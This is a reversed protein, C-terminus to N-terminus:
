NDMVMCLFETAILLIVTKMTSILSWSYEHEKVEKEGFTTAAPSFYASELLPSTLEPPTERSVREGLKVRGLSWSSHLWPFLLWTKRLSPDGSDLSPM